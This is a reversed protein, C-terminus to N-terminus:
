AINDGYTKITKNLKKADKMKSSGSELDDTILFDCEKISVEEVTYGLKSLHEKYENKTKYGYNKPSGTLTLKLLKGGSQETHFVVKRGGFEEIARVVAMVINYKDEGEDWGSVVSKELGHFSYECGSLKKGIEKVTKGDNSIGEYSLMSIVQEITVEGIGFVGEVFNDWVKGELGGESLKARLEGESVTLYDWPHKYVCRYLSEMMVEGLGFIKLSSMGNIFRQIRVGECEGNSCRIFKGNEVYLGSGCYPCKFENLIDFPKECQNVVNLIQPIIDGSKVISVISGVNLNNKEIFSYNYASAKSVMTDDLAVPELLAVPTFVGTKGMSMEFGKVTTVCDEPKFKVAVAWLPHHEVEGLITRYRQEIKFVMGDVRYPSEEYKYKEYMEFLEVFHKDFGNNAVAFTTEVRHLQKYNKFGWGEIETIDHYVLEAGNMSRMEVPVLDIEGMQEKTSDDSNLVGAVYNRENSFRDSHKEAFVDKRIVAECRVEVIDHVAPITEPYQSRDIKPLYDRGYEGDGRSLAYTIHGDIYVLNIANGDLKQGVEVKVAYEGCKSIANKMWKAFEEVPAEGTNKDAQIKELSRMPTPHKVKAKRDWYGVNNVVSSKQSKLKEELADFEADTMIPQENYYGEKAEAYLLEDGKLNEKINDM